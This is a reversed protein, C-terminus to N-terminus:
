NGNFSITTSFNAKILRGNQIGPQWRPMKEIIRIADENLAENESSLVKINKVLGSTDVQWTLKVKGSFNWMKKNMENALFKRMAADGGYFTPKMELVSFFLNRNKENLVEGDEKVVDSPKNEKREITVPTGKVGEYFVYAKTATDFTVVLKNKYFYEINSVFADNEMKGNIVIDREKDFLKWVGYKKGDKDLRNITEGEYNVASQAFSVASILLCVALTQLRTIM